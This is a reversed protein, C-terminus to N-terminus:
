HSMRKVPMCDIIQGSLWDVDKRTNHPLNYLASLPTHQLLLLLWLTKKKLMYTDSGAQKDFSCNLIHTNSIFIIEFMPTTYIGDLYQILFFIMMMVKAHIFTVLTFCLFMIIPHLQLNFSYKYKCSYKFMNWQSFEVSHHSIIDNQWLKRKCQFKIWCVFTSLQVSQM